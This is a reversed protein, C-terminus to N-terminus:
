RRKIRCELRDQRQPPLNQVHLFGSEVADERIRLDTRDDRSKARSDPLIKVDRLSAIMFDDDHGISVHVASMDAGQQQGEEIAEHPLDDLRSIDIDSLRRKVLDLLVFDHPISVAVFLPILDHRTQSFPFDIDLAILTKSLHIRFLEPLRRHIRFATSQQLHTNLIRHFGYKQWDIALEVGERVHEEDDVILLKMM